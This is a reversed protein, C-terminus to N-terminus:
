NKCTFSVRVRWSGAKESETKKADKEFKELTEKEIKLKKTLNEIAKETRKIKNEKSKKSKEKRYIKKGNLFTNKKIKLKVKQSNFLNM